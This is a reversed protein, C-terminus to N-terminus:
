CSTYFLGCTFYDVSKYFGQTKQMKDEFNLILFEEASNSLFLFVYALLFHLFFALNQDLEVFSLKLDVFYAFVCPIILLHALM